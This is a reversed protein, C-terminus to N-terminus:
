DYIGQADDILLRPRKTISAPKCWPIKTLPALEIWRKMYSVERQTNSQARANQKLFLLGVAHSICALLPLSTHSKRRAVRVRTNGELVNIGGHSVVIRM